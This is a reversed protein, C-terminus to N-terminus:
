SRKWRTPTDPLIPDLRPQTTSGDQSQAEMPHDGALMEAILQIQSLIRTLKQVGKISVVIGRSAASFQQSLETLERMKLPQLAQAAKDIDAAAARLSDRISPDKPSDALYDCISRARQVADLLADRPNELSSMVTRWLTGIVTAAGSVDNPFM